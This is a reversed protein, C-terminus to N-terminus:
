IGRPQKKLQATEPQSAAIWMLSNKEKIYISEPTEPNKHKQYDKYRM